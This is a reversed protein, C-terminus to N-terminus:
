KKKKEVGADFAWPGVCVTRSVRENCCGATAGAPDLEGMINKLWKMSVAFHYGRRKAFGALM